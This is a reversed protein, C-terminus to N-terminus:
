TLSRIKELLQDPDFPKSIYEDMGVEICKEREGTLAHATLAIIPIGRVPGNMKNRIYKATEYGDMEPMQLDLLLLDYEKQGLKEIASKGDSAIDVQHGFGTIVKEALLQNVPVDEALLVMLSEKRATTKEMTKTVLPAQRQESKRTLVTFSFTSGKDPESELQVSGKMLNVLRKVIALGLGTGGYQNYISSHAQVFSQFILKQRMLAIGIGTDKVSFALTLRDNEEKELAATIEIYGAKTFKFANELLNSLVQNIRIPDGKTWLPLNEDVRLKLKIGNQNAKIKYINMLNDLLKRPEFDVVNISLTGSEIKSLDLIDNIIVLLNEGSMNIANLYEVQEFNLNSKLLLNAFGLIANLPTRIEHSMNALFEDKFEQARKLESNKLDLIEKELRIAKNQADLLQNQISSENKEQLITQSIRYHETFDFIVLYCVGTDDRTLILDYVGLQENLQLNVCPFFIDEGKVITGIAEKISEFFPGIERLNECQSVKILADDSDLINGTDDLSIFQAKRELHKAKLEVLKM